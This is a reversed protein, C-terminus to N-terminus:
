SLVMMLGFAKGHEVEERQGIKRTKKGIMVIGVMITKRLM